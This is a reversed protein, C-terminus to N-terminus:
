QFCVAMKLNKGLQMLMTILRRCYIRRAFREISEENCGHAATRCPVKCIDRKWNKRLQMLAEYEKEMKEVGEVSEIRESNCGLSPSLAVGSVSISEIRESNCRFANNHTLAVLSASEIRESNCWVMEVSVYLTLIWPYKWNKRLQM